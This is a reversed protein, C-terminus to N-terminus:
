RGKTKALKTLARAVRGSVRGSTYWGGFSQYWTGSINRYNRFRIHLGFPYWEKVVLIASDRDERYYHVTRFKLQSLVIYVLVLGALIVLTEM